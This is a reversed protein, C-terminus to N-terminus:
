DRSRTDWARMDLLANSQWSGEESRGTGWHRSTGVECGVGGGGGPRLFARSGVEVPRGGAGRGPGGVGRAAGAALGRASGWLRRVGRIRRLFGSQEGQWGNLLAGSGSLLWPGGGQGSRM